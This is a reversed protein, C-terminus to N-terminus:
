CTNTLSYKYQIHINVTYDMAWNIVVVTGIDFYLESHRQMEPNMYKMNINNINWTSLM